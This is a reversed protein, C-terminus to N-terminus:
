EDCWQSLMKKTGPTSKRNDQSQWFSCEEEREKIERKRHAAKTKAIQQDRKYEMISDNPKEGRKKRESAWQMWKKHLEPEHTYEWVYHGEPTMFCQPAEALWGSGKCFSALIPDSALKIAQKTISTDQQGYSKNAVLVSLLLIFLAKM